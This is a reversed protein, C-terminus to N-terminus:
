QLQRGPPRPIGTQVRIWVWLGPRALPDLRHVTTPLRQGGTCVDPDDSSTLPSRLEDINDAVRTKKRPYSIGNTAAM